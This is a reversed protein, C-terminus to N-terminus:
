VGLKMLENRIKKYYPIRQVHPQYFAKHREPNDLRWQTARDDLKKKNIKYYQKRYEKAKEPDKFPM